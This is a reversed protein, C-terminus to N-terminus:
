PVDVDAFELLRSFSQKDLIENEHTELLFGSGLNVVRTRNEDGAGFQSM